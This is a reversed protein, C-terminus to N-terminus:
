RRTGIVTWFMIKQSKQREQVYRKGNNHWYEAILNINLVQKTMLPETKIYKEGMHEWWINNNHLIDRM